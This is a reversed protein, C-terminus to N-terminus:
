GDDDRRVPWHKLALLMRSRQIALRSQAIVLATSDESNASRELCEESSRLLSKQHPTLNDM